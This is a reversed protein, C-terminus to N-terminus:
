AAKLDFPWRYGRLGLGVGAAHLVQLALVAYFLAWEWAPAKRSLLQESHKGDDITLADQVYSHVQDILRRQAAEFTDDQAALDFDLCAVVWQGEVNRAVLHLVKPSNTPM